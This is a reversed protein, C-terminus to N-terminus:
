QPKATKWVQISPFRVTFEDMVEICFVCSYLLKKAKGM